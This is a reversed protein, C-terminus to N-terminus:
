GIRRLAEAAIAANVFARRHRGLAQVRPRNRAERHDRRPHIADYTYSDLGYEVRCCRDPGVDIETCLGLRWGHMGRGIVVDGVRV